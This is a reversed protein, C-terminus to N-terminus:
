QQPNRYKIDAAVELLDQITKNGSSYSFLFSNHGNRDEAYPDAGYKLLLQIMPLDQNLIAIILPRQNRLEPMNANAKYEELLKKAALINRTRVAISLLSMGRHTLYTNIPFTGQMKDLMTFVTPWDVQLPNVVLPNILSYLQHRPRAPDMAHINIIAAIM